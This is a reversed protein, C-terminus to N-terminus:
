VQKWRRNQHLEPRHPRGGLSLRILEATIAKHAADSHPGPLSRKQPRNVWRRKGM